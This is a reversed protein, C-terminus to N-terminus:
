RYKQAVSRAATAESVGHNKAELQILDFWSKRYSKLIPDNFGNRLTELPNLPDWYYNFVDEIVDEPADNFLENFDELADEYKYGGSTYYKQGPNITPNPFDRKFKQIWFYDSKCIENAQRNRQCYYKLENIPVNLLIEYNVSSPLQNM